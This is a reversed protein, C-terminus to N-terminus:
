GLLPVTCYTDIYEVFLILIQRITFMVDSDKCGISLSSYSATHKGRLCSVTIDVVM